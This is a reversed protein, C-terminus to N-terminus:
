LDAWNSYQYLIVAFDAFSIIKSNSQVFVFCQCLTSIFHSWTCYGIMSCLNSLWHQELYWEFESKTFTEEFLEWILCFSKGQYGYEWSVLFVAVSPQQKDMSRIGIASTLIIIVDETSFDKQFGYHNKDIIHYKKM